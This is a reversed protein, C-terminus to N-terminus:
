APMSTSLCDPSAQLSAPSKPLETQPQFNRRPHEACHISSAVVLASSTSSYYIFYLVLISHGCLCHIALNFSSHSLPLAPLSTFASFSGPTPLCPCAARAPSSPRISPCCDAVAGRRLARPPPQCRLQRQCVPSVAPCPRQGPGAGGTANGSMHCRRKFVACQSSPGHPAYNRVAM